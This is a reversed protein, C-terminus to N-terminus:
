ICAYSTREGFLEIKQLYTSPM